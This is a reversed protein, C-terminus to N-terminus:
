HYLHRKHLARTALLVPARIRDHRGWAVTIAELQMHIMVFVLFSPLHMTFLGYHPIATATHAAVSIQIFAQSTHAVRHSSTSFKPLHMTFLGYHPPFATATHVAGAVNAAVRIRDFGLIIMSITVIANTFNSTFVARSTANTLDSPPVVANTFNSSFSARSTTCLPRGM